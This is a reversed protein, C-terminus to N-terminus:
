YRPRLVIFFAPCAFLIFLIYIGNAVFPTGLTHARAAAKETGAGTCYLHRRIFKLIRANLQKVPFNIAGRQAL